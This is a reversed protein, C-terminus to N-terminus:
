GSLSLLDLDILGLFHFGGSMPKAQMQIGPRVPKFM